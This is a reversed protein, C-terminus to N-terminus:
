DLGMLTGLDKDGRGSVGILIRCGPHARAQERAGAFAHATELAILIGELQCCENLAELAASDDASTYHARGSAALLAHEPGVGPYDLGASISHTEQIQGDSDHLLM